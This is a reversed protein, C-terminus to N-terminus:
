LLCALISRASSNLHEGLHLFYRAAELSVWRHSPPLALRTHPPLELIRHLHEERYFRAGEESQRSELVVRGLKPQMFEEFLFPKQLSLNDLYNSPTFQVTPALQVPPRNGPESKAQLLVHPQGRITQKLLGIIGEHPNELIPQSWAAVERGQTEVELGIVRFFRGERHAFYGQRDLHWDALSKFPVRKVHLHTCAKQEDLWDILAHLHAATEEPALTRGERRGPSLEPHVMASLVSRACANICNDRRLLAAIQRLTLWIFQDSERVLRAPAQVIMNRNSKYLFRGGDETQLRSYLVSRPRPNLFLDVFPTEVGGHARRYNSYTAQVTPSLQVTDINGPEVKAQLCAHLVGGIRAVLIGLIGVEAQDVFPQGWEIEDTGFRNRAWAGLITFFRGSRHTINGTQPDMRWGRLDRLPIRRTRLIAQRRTRSLWAEVEADTHASPSSFRSLAFEIEIRPDLGTVRLPSSAASELYRLGMRRRKPDLELGLATM